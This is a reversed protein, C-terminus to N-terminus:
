GDIYKRAPKKIPQCTFGTQRLVFSGGYKCDSAIAQRESAAGVEKGVFIGLVLALAIGAVWGAM